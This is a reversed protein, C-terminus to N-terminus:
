TKPPVSPKLRTPLKTEKEQPMPLALEKAKQWISNRLKETPLHYKVGMSYAVFLLSILWFITKVPINKFLWPITVNGTYKLPEPYKNKYEYTTILNGIYDALSESAKNWSDVHIDQGHCTIIGHPEFSLDRVFSVHPSDDGTTALLLSILNNRLVTTDSKVPLEALEKKIKNLDKIFKKHSM